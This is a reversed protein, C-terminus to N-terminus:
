LVLEQLKPFSSKNCIDKIKNIVLVANHLELVAAKRRVHGGVPVFFTTCRGAGIATRLCVCEVM